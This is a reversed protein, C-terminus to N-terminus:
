MLFFDEPLSKIKVGLFYQSFGLDKIAFECSLQDILNRIFADNNEVLLVDDM